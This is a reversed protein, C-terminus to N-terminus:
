DGEFNGCELEAFLTAMRNATYRHIRRAMSYRASVGDGRFLKEAEVCLAAARKSEDAESRDEHLVIEFM